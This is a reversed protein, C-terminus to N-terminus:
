ILLEHSEASWKAFLPDPSAPSVTPLGIRFNDFWSFAYDLGFGDGGTHIPNGFDTTAILEGDVNLTVRSGEFAVDRAYWQTSSFKM